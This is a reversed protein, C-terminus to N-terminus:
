SRVPCINHGTSLKLLPDAYYKNAGDENFNKKQLGNSKSSELYERERIIQRCM